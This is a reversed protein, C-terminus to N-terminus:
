KIYRNWSCRYEVWFPEYKYRNSHNNSVFQSRYSSWWPLAMNKSGRFNSMSHEFFFSCLCNSLPNLGTSWFLRQNLRRQRKPKRLRGLRLLSWTLTMFPRWSHRRVQRLQWRPMPCLARLLCGLTLQLWLRLWRATARRKWSSPQLSLPSAKVRWSTAKMPTTFSRRYGVFLPLM